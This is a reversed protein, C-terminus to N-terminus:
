SLLALLRETLAHVVRLAGPYFPLAVLLLVGVLMLVARPSDRPPAEPDALRLVRRALDDGNHLAMEPLSAPCSPPVLRAVRLLAGALVLAAGPRGSVAREDAAEEAAARWARALREGAPTWALVDPCARLLWHRLNDRGALHAREHEVVAALEADGLNSLVQSAVYLRPRRFGLVAVVPFPHTIRCAPLGPVALDV